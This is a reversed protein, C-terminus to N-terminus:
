SIKWKELSGKNACVMKANVKGRTLMKVISHRDHFLNKSLHVQRSLNVSEKSLERSCATVIWMM